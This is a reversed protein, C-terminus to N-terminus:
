SAPASLLATVIDAPIFAGAGNAIGIINGNLDVASGGAPIIGINASIVAVDVKTVIGTMVSGDGAIAIVTQGPKVEAKGILSPSSADPLAAADAFGFITLGNGVKSRSAPASSGDSFVIVVESPLGDSIAVVARAKPLYTGSAIPVKASASRYIEVRRTAAAAVAATRLEETSPADPKAIIPPLTPAPATVTDVTREVIRNVTQTITPSTDDLLSVTLVGTAISTVFNVLLTLLLFQTKNLDEIDM